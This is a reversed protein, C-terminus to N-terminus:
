CSINVTPPKDPIWPKVTSGMLREAERLRLLFCRPVVTHSHRGGASVRTNKKKKKSSSFQRNVSRVNGISTQFRLMESRSYSDSQKTSALHLPAKQEQRTPRARIVDRRTAEIAPNVTPPPRNCAATHTVYSCVYIHSTATAARHESREEYLESSKDAVRLGQCILQSRQMVDVIDRTRLIVDESGSKDMNREVRMVTMMTAGEYSWECKCKHTCTTSKSKKSLHSRLVLTLTGNGKKTDPKSHDSHPKDGRERHRQLVTLACLLFQM